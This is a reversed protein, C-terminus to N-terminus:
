NSFCHYIKTSSSIYFIEDLRVAGNSFDIFQKIFIKKQCKKGKQEKSM